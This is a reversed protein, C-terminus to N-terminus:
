HICSGQACLSLRLHMPLKNSLSMAGAQQMASPRLSHERLFRERKLENASYYCKADDPMIDVDSNIGSALLLWLIEPSAQTMWACHLGSFERSLAQSYPAQQHSSCSHILRTQSILFGAALYHRLNLIDGTKVLNWVSLYSDACPHRVLQLVLHERVTTITRQLSKSSRLSQCGSHCRCLVCLAEFTVDKRYPASTQFVERTTVTCFETLVDEGM